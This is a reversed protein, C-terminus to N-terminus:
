RKKTKAPPSASARAGAPDENPTGSWLPDRNGANWRVWEASMAAVIEPHKTALDTTEGVDKALDFLQWGSNTKTEFDRWDVLKWYGRRVARQPGFRWFLAAHPAEASRGTLHPLLDVGDLGEPKPQGAA